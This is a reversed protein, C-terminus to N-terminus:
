RLVVGARYGGTALVGALLADIRESDGADAVIRIPLTMALRALEGLEEGGKAEQKGSALRVHDKETTVLTAGLARAREMLRRADDASYAHHDKFSHREAIHGGCQEILAFFRAPNAIGAFAVLPREGIWTIEGSAQARTALVPGPFTRRVAELWGAATDAREPASGKQVPPANVVIADTLELQVDLPARLPGAPIVHGNGLGRRADILAFTLDKALSPNQLGDDMIIVSGADAATEIAIAGARRDRSILTPAARALLLPEDGVDRATDREPDVWHPGTHRGGYGRTLFVPREGMANLRAALHLSLPTKGTGGMALSGVSIVPVPLRIIERLGRRYCGRRLRTAQGVAWALPFLLARRATSM